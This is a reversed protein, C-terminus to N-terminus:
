QMFKPSVCTGATVCAAAFYEGTGEFGRCSVGALFGQLFAARGGRSSGLLGRMLRLFVRFKTNFVRHLRGGSLEVPVM